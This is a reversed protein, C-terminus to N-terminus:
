KPFKIILNSFYNQRFQFNLDFYNVFQFNLLPFEIEEFNQNM